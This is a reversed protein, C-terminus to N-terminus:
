KRIEKLDRCSDQLIHKWGRPIGTLGMGTDTHTREDDLCHMRKMTMLKVCRDSRVVKTKRAAATAGASESTASPPHKLPDMLAALAVRRFSGGHIEKAYNLLQRV